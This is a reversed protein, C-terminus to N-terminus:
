RLKKRRQNVESRATDTVDGARDRVVGALEASRERATDALEPARDRALGAMLQRFRLREQAVDSEDKPLETREASQKMEQLANLVTGEAEAKESEM